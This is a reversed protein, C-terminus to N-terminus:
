VHLIAHNIVEFTSFAILVSAPAQQRKGWFFVFYGDQRLHKFSHITLDIMTTVKLANV